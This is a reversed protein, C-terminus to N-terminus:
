WGTVLAGLTVTTGTEGGITVGVVNGVVSIRQPTYVDCVDPNTDTVTLSVVYNIVTIGAITISGGVCGGPEQGTGIPITLVTSGTHFGGGIVGWCLVQTGDWYCFVNLDSRYWWADEDGLGLGPPTSTRSGRFNTRKPLIDGLSM